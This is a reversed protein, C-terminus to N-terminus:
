DSLLQMATNATTNAQSMLLSGAQAASASDISAVLKIASDMTDVASQTALLSQKQTDIAESASTLAAIKETLYTKYTEIKSSAIKLGALVAPPDTSLNKNETIGLSTATIDKAEIDITLGNGISVSLQDNDSSLMFKGDSQTAAAITDINNILTDFETQMADVQQTTYHGNAAQKALTTMRDTKETINGIANTLTQTKSLGAGINSAYLQNESLASKLEYITASLSIHEDIDEIIDQNKLQSTKTNMSRYITDNISNNIDIPQM